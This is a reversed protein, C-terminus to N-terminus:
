QSIRDLLNQYYGLQSIDADNGPINEEYFSLEDPRRPFGGCGSTQFSRTKEYAQKRWKIGQMM